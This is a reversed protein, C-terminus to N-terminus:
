KQSLIDLLLVRILHSIGRFRDEFQLLSFFVGVNKEPPSRLGGGRNGFEGAAM